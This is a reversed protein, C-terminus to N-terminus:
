ASRASTARSGDHREAMYALLDVERAQGIARGQSAALWRALLTLDRRYAAQTLAALGDEIWLAEIFREIMDKSAQLPDMLSSPPSAVKRHSRM